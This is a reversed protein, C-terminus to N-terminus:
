FRQVLAIRGVVQTSGSSAGASGLIRAKDLATGSDARVRQWAMQLYISTRKSFDYDIMATLQHWGAALGPSTDGASAHTYAYALAVSFNPQIFHQGNIELNDFRLNQWGRTGLEPIFVSSVPDDIDVHSYALGINSGNAATLRAGVGIIRQSASVFPLKTGWAGTKNTGGNSGKMYAAAVSLWARNFSLAASYARDNGFQTDNSFGYTAELQFGAYSPSVYKVMNNTIIGGDANDNDFPHAGLDGLINGVGTSPSWMDITADYQRGLTLAGYRPSAVGAYAQRGFSRGPDGATGNSTRFGNELTFVAVVGGGLDEKGKFGWMSAVANGSVMSYASKGGANSTFNIGADVAGYLTVGTQAQAGTAM